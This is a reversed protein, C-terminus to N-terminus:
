KLSHIEFWTAPTRASWVCGAPVRVGGRSGYLHRSVLLLDPNIRFFSTWSSIQYNYRACLINGVQKTFMDSACLNSACVKLAIINRETWDQLAFDRIEIHRMQHTPAKSDAVMRCADNDEYVNTTAHQHQHLKDLVAHIFIGPRGTDSAALFESEATGL